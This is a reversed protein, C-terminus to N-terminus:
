VHEPDKRDATDLQHARTKSMGLQRALPALALKDRDRIRRVIGPREAATSEWLQRFGDALQSVARFKAPDDDRSRVSDFAARAAALAAAVEPDDDDV